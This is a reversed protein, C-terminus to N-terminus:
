SRMASVGADADPKKELAELCKFYFVWGARSMPGMGWCLHGYKKELRAFQEREDRDKTMARLRRMRRTAKM